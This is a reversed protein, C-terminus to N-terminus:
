KKSGRPRGGKTWANRFELDRIAFISARLEEARPMQVKFKTLAYEQIQNITRTRKEPSADYVASLWAKFGEEDAENGNDSERPEVLEPCPAHANELHESLGAIAQALTPMNTRELHVLEATTGDAYTATGSSMDFDVKRARVVDTPIPLHDAQLSGHRGHLRYYGDDVLQRIRDVAQREARKARKRVKDLSDLKNPNPIVHVGDTTVMVMHNMVTFCAPYFGAADDRCTSAPTVDDAYDTGDFALAEEFATWVEHIHAIATTLLIWEAPPQRHGTM